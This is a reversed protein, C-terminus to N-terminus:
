YIIKLYNVKGLNKIIKGNVMMFLVMIINMDDMVM